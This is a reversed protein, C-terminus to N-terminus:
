SDVKRRIKYGHLGPPHKALCIKTDKGQVIGQQTNQHYPKLAVMAYNRSPSFSSREEVTMDNYAKCEDLDHRENYMKCRSSKDESPGKM